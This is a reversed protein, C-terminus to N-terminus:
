IEQTFDQTVLQRHKIPNVGHGTSNYVYNHRKPLAYITQEWLGSWLVHTLVVTLVCQIGCCAVGVDTQVEEPGILHSPECTAKTHKHNLLFCIESDFHSHLRM